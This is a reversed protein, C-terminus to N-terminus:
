GSARCPLNTRFIINIGSSSTGTLWRLGSYLSFAGTVVTKTQQPFKELLELYMFSNGVLVTSQIITSVTGAFVVVWGWGGETYTANREVVSADKEPGKEALTSDDARGNGATEVHEAQTTWVNLKFHENPTTDQCRSTRKANCVHKKRMREM